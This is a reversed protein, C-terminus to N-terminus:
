LCHQQKKLAHKSRPMADALSPKALPTLFRAEIGADRLSTGFAGSFGIDANM